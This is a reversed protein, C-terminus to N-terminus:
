FNKDLKLYGEKWYQKSARLKFDTQHENGCLSKIEKEPYLAINRM